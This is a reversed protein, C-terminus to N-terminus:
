AKNSTLNQGLMMPHLQILTEVRDAWQNLRAQPDLWGANEMLNLGELFILLLILLFVLVGRYCQAWDRLRQLLPPPESRPTQGVDEEEDDRGTM